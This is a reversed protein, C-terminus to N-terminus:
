KKKRGRGGQVWDTYFDDDAQRREELRAFPFWRSECGEERSGGEDVRAAGRVSMLAREVEMAQTAM